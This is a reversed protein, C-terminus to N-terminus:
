WCYYQCSTIYCGKPNDGSWECHCEGNYWVGYTTECFRGNDIACCDFNKYNKNNWQPIGKAQIAAISFVFVFLLM